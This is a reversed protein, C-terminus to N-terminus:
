EWWFREGLIVFALLMPLAGFAIWRAGRAAPAHRAAIALTFAGMAALFAVLMILGVVVGRWNDDLANPGDIAVWLYYWAIATPPGALAAVGLRFAWRFSRGASHRILPDGAPIPRLAM